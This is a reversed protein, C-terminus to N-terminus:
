STPEPWTLASKFRSRRPLKVGQGIFPVETPESLLYGQVHTAGALRAADLQEYTEIGEVVVIPAACAALGVMHALIQESSAREQQVFFADIKVIDVPISFLSQATSYGAGFDDIAIKYGLSRVSQILDAAQLAVSIPLKESVELVMRSALSRHRYLLDYLLCWDAAESISKASLNCGLVAKPHESLWDFALNIVYRDLASILGQAEVFPIFSGATVITGDSDVIRGFCESYLIESIRSSSHVHQWSFGVRGEAMATAIEDNLAPFSGLFM